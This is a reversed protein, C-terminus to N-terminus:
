GDDYEPVGWCETLTRAFLDRRCREVTALLWRLGVAFVFLGAALGALFGLGGLGRLLFCTGIMVTITLAGLLFVLSCVIPLEARNVRGTSPFCSPWINERRAHHLAGDLWLKVRHRSAWALALMSVLVSLIFGGLTTLAAGLFAEKFGDWNLFQPRVQVGRPRLVGAFLTIALALVGGTIATKYLGSAVYLWFCAHARGRHGDIRSLWRATRFDNLGFKMCVALAGLAPKHTLEYILWGLGLLVPWSLYSTWGTDSRADDTLYDYTPM